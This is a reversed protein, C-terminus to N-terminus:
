LTNLSVFRFTNAQHSLNTM